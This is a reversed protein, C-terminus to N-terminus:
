LPLTCTITGNTPRVFPFKISRCCDYLTSTSLTGPISYPTFCEHKQVVVLKHFRVSVFRLSDKNFGHIESRKPQKPTATGAAGGHM